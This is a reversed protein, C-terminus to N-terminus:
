KEERRKVKRIKSWKERRREERNRWVDGVKEGKKKSNRRIRTGRGRKKDEEKGDKKGEKEFIYM